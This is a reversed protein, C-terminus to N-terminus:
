VMALCCSYFCTLEGWVAKDSREACVCPRSPEKKVVNNKARGIQVSCYVHWQSQRWTWFFVYQQIGTFLSVTARAHAGGGEFFAWNWSGGGQSLHVAQQWPFARCIPTPTRTVHGPLLTFLGWEYGQQWLRCMTSIVLGSKLHPDGIPLRQVIVSCWLVLHENAKQNQGESCFSYNLMCWYMNFEDTTFGIWYRLMKGLTVDLYM